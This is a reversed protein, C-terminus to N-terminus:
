GAALVVGQTWDNLQEISRTMFDIQEMTLSTTPQLATAASADLVKRTGQLQASPRIAM